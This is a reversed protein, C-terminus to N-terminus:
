DRDVDGKPRGGKGKNAPAPAPIPRTAGPQSEGGTSSAVSESDDTGDSTTRDTTVRGNTRPMDEGLETPTAGSCGLVFNLFTLLYSGLILPGTM